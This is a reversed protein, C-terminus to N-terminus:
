EFFQIFPALLQNKHYMAPHFGSLALIRCIIGAQDLSIWGQNQAEPTFSCFFISGKCPYIAIFFIIEIRKRNM